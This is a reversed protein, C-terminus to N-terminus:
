TFSFVSEMARKYTWFIIILSQDAPFGTMRNYSAISRASILLAPTLFLEHSRRSWLSRHHTKIISGLGKAFSKQIFTGRERGRRVEYHRGEFHDDAEETFAGNFGSKACPTGSDAMTVLLYPRFTSVIQRRGPGQGLGHSFWVM